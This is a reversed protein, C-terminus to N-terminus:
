TRSFATPGATLSGHASWPAVPAARACQWFTEYSNDRLMEVGNSPKASTVTWVALDGIERVTGRDLPEDAGSVERGAVAAAAAQAAM